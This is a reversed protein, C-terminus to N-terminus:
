LFDALSTQKEADSEFVSKIDSEMLKLRQKTYESVGFEEAVRMATRLYKEVGGRPVTLILNGGCELCRGLLPLRRYKTNCGTCRFQQTSFKRLNGKLDPILHHEIVREAVDREDVARIRKALTLQAMVKEEMSELTSYISTLPGLALDSTHVNFVLGEYQGEKGLRKEVIEMLPLVETPHAGKLTAEYFELPYRFMVDMNHVEKDVEAPDIRVNLVLPADMFGGRSAPLFKRSFNLLADLLLMVADEDGDCQGVSFGSAIANHLGEVTFSYLPQPERVIERRASSEFVEGGLFRMRPGETSCDLLIKRAKSNKQKGMFGIKKCFESAANGYIRLKYTVFKPTRGKKLGFKGARSTLQIREERQITCPIGFRLLLFEIDRILMESASTCSVEVKGKGCVGGNGEFYGQLFYRVKKLPLSFVFPPVRKSLAGSGVELGEFLDHIIRSSITLTNSLLTPSIGFCREIIRKLERVRARDCVAFNVQNCSGKKRRLHGEAVYFGLLRLFCRDVKIFRPVARRTHTQKLLVEEPIPVGLAKLVDLPIGRYTYFYNRLTRWNRGTLQAAVKLGKEKTLGRERWFKELAKRVGVVVTSREEAFDLLDIHAVEKEPIKIRAPLLLRSARHAEVKGLDRDLIPHLGSVLLSRGRAKLRVLHDQAPHKSFAVVPRLKYKFDRDLALTYIGKTKVVLDGFETREPNSQRILDEVFDGLKVLRWGKGDILLPVVTESAFCDRRKAAHFYPHAYGVNAKTFGVIRGVMGVSTHPSLGLVLHGLLDEKRQARYYPSLGYFKELLEDVFRAVRLLYRAGEECLIVDQVKLEVLQDERELPEGLYDRTYGLERLREVSVGVEKPSFHTLPLNTADFRVTGDKFVRLDHKARLIGKELPEPIKYASSMGKVGKLEPPAKEGLRREAEELMGKLDLIRETFFEERVGCTQCRGRLTPRGCKPCVKVFETREGCTPCKRTLGVTGCSPCKLNALELRLSEKSSAAKLISRTPGGAQGVPFLLHPPPDMERPKAKEPRGMKSGVWTPAKRRVPFGSVKQLLSIVDREEEEELRQPTREKGRLIGLTRCLPLAHEEIRVRGEEVRHPVGLLELIRKPEEEKPLVLAKLEEGEFEAEGSCLWRALVLLDEREVEHYLYTYHPHLPVGLRESIEVALRAPPTPYPPLLYPSLDTSFGEGKRAREVEQAWWEECYGAPILPHNNELFEGFDVLLDGLCLIEEVQNKLREAEEVSSIRVVSGDQLKVTPGEITDVPAVAGGKGPRELKLQTGVALFGGLVVMTAPHVGVAAIGTNRSRGYRLRFGGPRGPYSIVPRGGIVEELYKAEEAEEREESPSRQMLEELWDWGEIGLKRVYKMIKPAKQLVGEALALVAGGRVFNHGVRPLDRYATVMVDRSTPEGTLEVPLNAVALRVEEPTPTYQLHSLETSYLNVEEVFREIERESPKYRDLLLKRRVFDGTLVALAAATGGASRIPGSFYLALYRTRDPNERIKVETLGELPAAVAIGETIIALATRVAQEARKEDDPEEGLRGDVIMEAVKLALEERVMEGELERIVRSVGPPGVMKEVRSAMDEAPPIEPELEPDRGLCRARRAIEYAEEVRQEIESFYTRMTQSVVERM